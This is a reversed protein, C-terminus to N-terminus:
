TKPELYKVDAMLHCPCASDVYIPKDNIIPSSAIAAAIRQFSNNSLARCERKVHGPKGCGWCTPGTGKNNAGKRQYRSPIKPKIEPNAVWCDDKTHGKKKCVECAQFAIFGKMSAEQGDAVKEDEFTESLLERMQNISLPSGTIVSGKYMTLVQKYPHGPQAKIGAIFRRMLHSEKFEEGLKALNQNILALKTWLKDPYEGTQLMAEDWKKTLSEVRLDKSNMEFHLVLDVWARTGNKEYRLRDGVISKQIEISGLLSLILISALRHSQVTARSMFKNNSTVKSAVKNSMEVKSTVEDPREVKSPFWPWNIKGEALLQGVSVAENLGNLDATAELKQKFSEWDGDWATTIMKNQKFSSNGAKM